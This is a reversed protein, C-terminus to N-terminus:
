KKVVIGRLHEMEERLRINEDIVRRANEVKDRLEAIVRRQEILEMELEVVYKSLDLDSYSQIGKLKKM